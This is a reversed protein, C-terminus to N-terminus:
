AVTRRGGLSVHEWAAVLVLAAAAAAGMALVPLGQMVVALVALVGLGVLHSLPLHGLNLRKFLALGLLFLVPGGLLAAMGAVGARDGAHKLLMDDAVATLVIGAAIPAHLYTYGIRAIRGPNPSAGFCRSCTSPRLVRCSTARPM